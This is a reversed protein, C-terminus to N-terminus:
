KLVYDNAGAKMAQVAVDEGVNASVLIFPLDLDIERLLKLAELGSFQPMSYDAIVLDWGPQTLAAKMATATEVRQYTLDCGGRRLTRAVLEADDASDEVMLIQVKPM